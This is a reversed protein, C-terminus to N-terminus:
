QKEAEVLKSLRRTFFGAYGLSALTLIGLLHLTMGREGSAATVVYSYGLVIAAVFGGVIQLVAFVRQAKSASIQM